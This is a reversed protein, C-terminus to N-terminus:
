VRRKLVIIEMRDSCDESYNAIDGISLVLERLQRKEALTLDM